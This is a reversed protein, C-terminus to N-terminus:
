GQGPMMGSPAKNRSFLGPVTTPLDARGGDQLFSSYVYLFRLLIGIGVFFLLAVLVGLVPYGWEVGFVMLIVPPVVGCVALTVLVQLALGFGEPQRTADFAKQAFTTALEVEQIENRTAPIRAEIVRREVQAPRLIAPEKERSQQVVVAIDMVPDSARAAEAKKDKSLLEYVWEWAARSRVTFELHAERFETWNLPSLSVPMLPTLIRHANQLEDTVLDLESRVQEESYGARESETVNYVDNMSFAYGADVIGKFVRADNVLDKADIVEVRVLDDALQGKARVARANLEGLRRGTAQQEAHLGVYRTVLMGGVIAIMAASGQAATSLLWNIDYGM